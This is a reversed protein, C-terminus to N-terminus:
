QVILKRTAKQDGSSITMIYIGARLSSINIMQNTVQQQTYVRKGLIDFIAIEAEQTTLGSISFQDRMPNPTINVTDFANNEIALTSCDAGENEGLDVRGWLVDAQVCQIIIYSFDGLNVSDPVDFTKMGTIPDNTDQGGNDDQLPETTVELETGGQNLRETTSLYVRLEIGQVTSFDDGFVVQKTGDTEFLISGTGSVPYQAPDDIAAFAGERFCQAHAVSSIAMFAVVLITIKKM